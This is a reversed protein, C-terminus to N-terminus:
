RRQKDPERTLRAGWSPPLQQALEIPSPCETPLPVPRARVHDAMRRLGTLIDVAHEAHAEPFIAHALTHDCHAHRVEKREPLFELREPVQMVGSVARALELVTMSEDGGINVTSNRAAPIGPARAIAEATADIYSFSRTQAGDGFITMPRGALAQAMFIGVVNRYPDSVNQRPGFVNHPRFITYAPGGYYQEFGRIHQECALKAIGYPDIPNAPTSESFPEASEAHGYVAISSTFVFHSARARHAANLVNVTGLVNNGYNFLPIHHSLGEAAYAALHYVVDPAFRQVVADLDPSNISLEVFDAGPPVNDRFGGSLDDIVLVTHRARILREAVHSGIFGAGGTVLAKM